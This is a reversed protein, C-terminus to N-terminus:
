FNFVRESMAGYNKTWKQLKDKQTKSFKGNLKYAEELTDASINLTEPIFISVNIKLVEFSLPIKGKVTNKWSKM